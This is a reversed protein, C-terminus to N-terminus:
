AVVPLGLVVPLAAVRALCVSLGLRRAVDIERSVRSRSHDGAETRLAQRSRTAFAELRRQWSELRQHASRLAAARPSRGWAVGRQVDALLGYELDEIEAVQHLVRRQYSGGLWRLALGDSCLFAFRARVRKAHRDAVERVRARAATHSIKVLGGYPLSAQTDVVRAYELLRRARTADALACEILTREYLIDHPRLGRAEYVLRPPVCGRLQALDIHGGESRRGRVRHWM